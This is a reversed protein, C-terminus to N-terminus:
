GGVGFVVFAAGLKEKRGHGGDTILILDDASLGCDIKPQTRVTYWQLASKCIVTDMELGVEASPLLTSRMLFFFLVFM